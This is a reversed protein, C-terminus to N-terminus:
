GVTAESRFGLDLFVQKSSSTQGPRITFVGRPVYGSPRVQASSMSMNLSGNLVLDSSLDTASSLDGLAAMFGEESTINIEHSSLVFQACLVLIGLRLLAWAAGRSIGPGKRVIQFM